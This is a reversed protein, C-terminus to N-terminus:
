VGRKFWTTIKQMLSKNNSFQFNHSSLCYLMSGATSAFSPTQVFDHSGITRIPKGLRVFSNKFYKSMKIFENLGAIKSGGGTIVIRQAMIQITNVKEQVLEIIEELRARIISDLMAKSVNQMHEEGYEDIRPILCQEMDDLSSDNGSSVGYLIKLREAHSHLTRLIISIDNTINQAGIPIPEIYLLNGSHFFAVTTVSGGFDVLTVGSLLEENLLVSLGSAYTSSIFGEVEINNRRICNRINKILASSATLIHVSATINEGVMGIPDQIDVADDISYSIPFIHIIERTETNIYRSTDFNLLSNICVDDVPLQGLAMQTEVSTSEIAWSPLSVFVSKISKQADKEASSVANLIAEELEELNTISNRKIGRAFHYGAGLVRLARENESAELNGKGSPVGRGIACCIKSTGIDLIAVERKTDIVKKLVAEESIAYVISHM